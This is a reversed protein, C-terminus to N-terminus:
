RIADFSMVNKHLRSTLNAKKNLLMTRGKVLSARGSRTNYSSTGATSPEFTEYGYAYYGGSVSNYYIVSFNYVGDELYGPQDLGWLTLDDVWIEVGGSTVGTSQEEAVVITGDADVTFKFDQDNMWHTIKFKGPTADSEYLELVEPELGLNEEWFSLYTYLGTGVLSWTEATAPTYTFTAYDYGRSEKNYYSIAVISYKGEENDADFPINVQGSASISQSEVSGDEIAAIVDSNVSSGAVLAVKAETVDAGLEVYAVAELSEDTKHLMGNYTVAVSTDLSEYGPFVITIDEATTENYGGVGFFYYYPSLHIEGPLGNDQWDVVYNYVWTSPDAFNTFRGPFVLYMDTSYDDYYEIAFDDYAVITPLGEPIVTSGYSDGAELLYFQFYEEYDSETIWEYPNSVRFLKPDIDNQYFQVTTTAGNSNVWDFEDTFTGTGLLTWPSPFVANIELENSGSAFPGQYESSISLLYSQYTDYDVGAETFSVYTITYAATKSGQNFTVSTPFTFLSSVNTSSLSEVNVPVTQTESDDSRVLNVTFSGGDSDLSFQTQSNGPFYVDGGAAGPYVEYGYYDKSDDCSTVFGAGMMAMVALSFYKNFKFM